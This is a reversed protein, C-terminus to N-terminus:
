NHVTILAGSQTAAGAYTAAITQDGNALTAPIVVNFQYEGPAVLGAFQVNATVGGIQIIPLPSLTGSQMTSGSTVPTNTPGFGNAYIV